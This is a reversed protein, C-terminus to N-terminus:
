CKDTQQIRIARWYGEKLHFVLFIDVKSLLCTRTFISLRVNQINATEFSPTRRSTCHDAELLFRKLCKHVSWLNTSWLYWNNIPFLKVGFRCYKLWTVAVSILIINRHQFQDSLIWHIKNIDRCMFISRKQRLYTQLLGYADDWAM